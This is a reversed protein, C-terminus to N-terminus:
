NNLKVLPIKFLLIEKALRALLQILYEWKLLCALLM